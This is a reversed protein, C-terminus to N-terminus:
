ESDSDNVSIQGFILMMLSIPFGILLRGPTTKLWLWTQKMSVPSAPYCVITERLSVQGFLAAFLMIPIGMFIRQPLMLLYQRFDFISECVVYQNDM